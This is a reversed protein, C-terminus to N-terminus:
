RKSSPGVAGVRTRKRSNGSGEPTRFESSESGSTADVSVQQNSRSKQKKKTAVKRKLMDDSIVVFKQKLSGHLSPSVRKLLGDTEDQTFNTPLKSIAEIFNFTMVQRDDSDPPPTLKLLPRPEFAIVQSKSGPNSERYRKGLLQLIAVRALTGPTVCNRISVNTLGEPRADKGGSFFGAFKDRVMRSAEASSARVKYLTRGETGRSTMNQVYKIDIEVNLKSLVQQVSEMAKLQWEKQDLKPLRPLGQVIFFVENKINAEFDFLEASVALHLDFDKRLSAHGQELVMVRDEISRTTETLGDVKTDTPARNLDLLAQPADFLHLIYEMGSYLDLHVGDSELRPRSFSPLLCLNDPRDRINKFAAAFKILIEPLADRYWLPVTRYMPPSIFVGLEPRDRALSSVKDMFSTFVPDVRVSISTGATYVPGTILNTICAVVCADSEPRVSSLASSLVSMRGGGPIFQAGSHLPRGQTNSPSQLHRRVNSDGVISFSRLQAM